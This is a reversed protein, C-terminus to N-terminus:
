DIQLKRTYVKSGTEVKLLYIGKEAGTLDINEERLNNGNIVKSNLLKGQIDFVSLKVDQDLAQVLRFNFVGNSPNPYISMLKDINIAEAVANVCSTSMVNIYRIALESQNGSLDTVRYSISFLGPVDGFWRDSFGPILPLTSSVIFRGPQRMEADTDFNDILEVGPDKFECWRGLNVTEGGLLKVSPKTRDLIEIERSTSDINGSPDTAYYWRTIKGKTSTNVFAPKMTVTLTNRPWLNDTVSYGPDIYSQYVDWKLPNDGQLQIVPPVNDTVKVEVVVENAKNGAGDIANYIIFYSGVNNIDVVGKWTPILDTSYNDTVRVIQQLDIATKVQHVYFAKNPTLLPTIVPRTTDGVVVTRKTTATMGFADTVVYKLSYTGLQTINVYGKVYVNNAALVQGQNDKAIVGSEVYPKKVEVYQLTDGLLQISPGTQNLIVFVTRNLTDSVNGYLDKVIYSIYNPGVKSTDVTGLIEYKASIDGEINDTALIGPDVYSKNIETEISTNGNLSVQPKVTDSPFNLIYDRFSGMFTVSNVLKTQSITAGVRMRTSGLRQTESIAVKQSTSLGLLGANDLVIEDNTFLGDMNFDIWAKTDMATVNTTSPRVVTLTPSQGRYLDAYITGDFALYCPLNPHSIANLGGDMTVRSIGVSGDSQSIDNLCQPQDYAGINIYDVQTLTDSGIDNTAVLRVTYKARLTLRVVPNQSTATTGLLFQPAPTITWRWKNPGNLSLDKLRFTDTNFGNFKDATFRAEPKQFVPMFMVTKCVTDLGVCNYAILCLNKFNASNVVFTRTPNAVTSDYLGDGDTDWLYNIIKGTAKSQFTVPQQSFITDPLVMAAKPKTFSPPTGLWRISFGASDYPNPVTTTGTKYRVLVNNGCRIGNIQINSPLNARDSGGITAIIPSSITEGNHFVLSDSPLMKIRDIFFLLSDACPNINIGACGAVQSRTYSFSPGSAAYMFGEQDTVKGFNASCVNYGNLVEIYDKYCTTDWGRLNWTQLCVTWKGPDGGFFLPNQDTANFFFNPFFPNTNCMNCQSSDSSRYYWWAWQNPGRDSLDIFPVYESTGIKKRPTFFNSVPAANPTDVYIYRLVSDRLSDRRIGNVALLRVPWFGRRNFTYTFSQNYKATDIYKQTTRAVSQRTYGPALVLEEPLDWFSRGAYTSTSVLKQPSNLWVTDMGAVFNPTPLSPYIGAIPPLMPNSSATNSINVDYDEAEGWTAGSCSTFAAPMATAGASEYLAVRMRTSAIKAGTPVTFPPSTYSVPGPNLSFNSQRVDSNAFVLESPEDFLFNNNFDIWVKIFNAYSGTGCWSMEVTISYSKGPVLVLAPIVKGEKNFSAAGYYNYQTSTAATSPSCATVNNIFTGNAGVIQVSTIDEDDVDTVPWSCYQAYGKNVFLLGLALFIFLIKQVQKNMRNM